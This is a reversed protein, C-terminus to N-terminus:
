YQKLLISLEMDLRDIEERKSGDYFGRIQNKNDLLVVSWPEQVRLACYVILGFKNYDLFLKKIKSEPNNPIGSLILSEVHSSAYKLSVRTVQSLDDKVFPYVIVLKADTEKSLGIEQLVSDPVTYAGKINLNCISDGFIGNEFYVPVAFENKGFKKLFVFILGPLALALFLYLFKRSM